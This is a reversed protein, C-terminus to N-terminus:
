VRFGLARAMKAQREDLTIFTVETPDPTMYLATALHWLDAGRLYGAEAVISIEQSLGRDPTIWRIRALTEPDFVTGTRTHAARVEAELLNSSRLDAQERLRHAMDDSSHEGFAIAIIASSDVYASAM